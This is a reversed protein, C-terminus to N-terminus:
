SVVVVKRRRSRGAVGAALLAVGALGFSAPEPIPGGGCTGTGVSVCVGQVDVTLSLADLGTFNREFDLDAGLDIFTSGDGVGTFSFTLVTFADAQPLALLEADDLLSYGTAGTDGVGFSADFVLNALGGFQPAVAFTVADNNLVAADFLMNIDFASLIENGLGSINMDVTVSGGVAINGASPVFSVVISASAPASACLAAVALAAASLTSKM